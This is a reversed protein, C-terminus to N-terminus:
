GEAWEQYITAALSMVQQACGVNDRYIESGSFRLLRIGQTTLYRDRAKDRAVQEKTKEHFEHGDCEVGIWMSLVRGSQSAEVHLAFDLRYTGVVRQSYVTAQWETEIPLVVMGHFRIRRDFMWLAALGLIMGQEIPSECKEAVVDAIPEFRMRAYEMAADIYRSM